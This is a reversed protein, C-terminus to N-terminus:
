WASWSAAGGLSPPQGRTNGPREGAPDAPQGGVGRGFGGGGENVWVLERGSYDDVVIDVDSDGDFDYVRMWRVPNADDDRNKPLRAATVDRFRGGGTNEVLQVYYGAHFGPGSGDGTRTVVVDRDGDGDIDAVDLDLVVGHGAVAPLITRGATSYVGTSDGWIIQTPGDEFEHGGVFLDAYGDSDVDVLEAAIILFQHHLGEVRPGARFSGSGDNLLFSAPETLFIDLDGDADIDASAGGFNAGAGAEVPLEATLGNGSSLLVYPPEVSFGAGYGTVFVDARGDGNYDGPLAKTSIPLASPSGAVFGTDLAFEGNGTNLYLEATLPQSSDNMPAYFIDIDADGDFDGYAWADAWGERGERVDRHGVRFPPSQLSHSTGDDVAPNPPVVALPGPRFTGSGDNRWVLRRSAEDAFIDPDGDEDIDFVRLWSIWDEEANGNEVVRLQTRDAFGRAATQELLQVHYGVYFGGGTEDGTRNVVLDKDGDGDTDAVDIDVVVGHGRMAPLISGRGTSFVGSDGGWLIQTPFGDYEHGAAILDAYGDGDVDALEATFIGTYEIGEIRTTDWTFGGAGDNILFFPRSFNDTVVIDLDGDADIDASAGGHHFGIIGGLGEAMVYGSDSSLVAYPSAGPFPHDDYGHDVVFVDPRGDGNFDGPLAKRPHVGGPPNEGFFGRDLGFWGMGDNLYMEAPFSHTSGDLSSYFIDIRGDGNFDAYAIALPHHGELPRIHRHSVYLGAFQLSHSTGEDVAPNPPIFPLTVTVRASGAFTDLAATVTAEGRVRAQVLGTSDVTAVYENGSLWFLTTDGVAHGNADQAEATLRSTDGVELDVMFPSVVVGAVEQRVAVAASDSATGASAVITAMGVAVARVLGSATVTAVLPDSSVWNVDAGSMVSGHQDRVEAVLRVTDGLATFAVSDPTISLTTPVPPDPSDTVTPAEDGCSLIAVIALVAIGVSPRMAPLGGGVLGGAWPIRSDRSDRM